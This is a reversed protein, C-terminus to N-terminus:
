VKEKTPANLYAKGVDTAMLNIDNFAAILFAIQVSEGSIVSSYTLQAPPDTKHGGAVLHAKWMFDLKIEFIIRHPIYKYDPPAREGPAKGDFAIYINQMEETIAIPWFHIKTKKISKM